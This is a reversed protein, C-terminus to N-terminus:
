GLAEGLLRSSLSLAALVAGGLALALLLLWARAARRRLRQWPRMQLSAPPPIDDFAHIFVYGCVSWILAVIMPLLFRDTQASRTTLILLACGALLLIAAGFLPKAAPRLRRAVRQLHELM